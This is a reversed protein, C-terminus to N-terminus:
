QSRAHDVYSVNNTLVNGSCTIDSGCARSIVGSGSCLQMKPMVGSGFKHLGIMPSTTHITRQKRLRDNEARLVSLSDAEAETKSAGFPTAAVTAVGFGLYKLFGRRKM